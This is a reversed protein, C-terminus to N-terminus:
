INNIEETNYDQILFEIAEEVTNILSAKEKKTNYKQTENKIDEEINSHNNKKVYANFEENLKIFYDDTIIKRSRTELFFDLKRKYFREEDEIYDIVKEDSFNKFNEGFLVDIIKIKGQIKNEITEFKVIFGIYNKQLNEIYNEFVIENCEQESNVSIMNEYPFSFKQFNNQGLFIIEKEDVVTFSTKSEM